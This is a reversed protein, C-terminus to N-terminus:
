PNLTFMGKGENGKMDLLCLNCDSQTGIITAAMYNKGLMEINSYAYKLRKESILEGDSTYYLLKRGESDLLIVQNTHKDIVFSMLSIFESPGAGRNGITSLFKGNMDFVLVGSKNKRDLIYIKNDYFRIKKIDVILSEDTAELHIFRSSEVFESLRGKYVNELNEKTVSIVYESETRKQSDENQCSICFFSLFVVITMSSLFLYKM